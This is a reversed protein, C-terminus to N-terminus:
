SRCLCVVLHECVLQLQGALAGDRDRDDHEQEDEAREDGDADRQQQRERTHDCRSAQVWVTEVAWRYVRCWNPASGKTTMAACLLYDARWRLLPDAQCCARINPLSVTSLAEPGAGRNQSSVPTLAPAQTGAQGGIRSVGDPSDQSVIQRGPGLYVAGVPPAPRIQRAQALPRPERTRRGAPAHWGEVQSLSSYLTAPSHQAKYRKILELAELVPRHVTNNSRFELAELIQILGARYHNAYSAKFSRQRAQRCAPGQVRVRAGPGPAGGARRRGPVGRGM